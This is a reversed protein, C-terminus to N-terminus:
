AYIHAGGHHGIRGSRRHVVKHTWNCDQCKQYTVVGAYSQEAGQSEAAVQVTGGEWGTAHCVM